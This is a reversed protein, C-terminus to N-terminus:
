GTRHKAEPTLCTDLDLKDSPRGIQLASTTGHQQDLAIGPAKYATCRQHGLDEEEPEWWTDFDPWALGLGGLDAICYEDMESKAM